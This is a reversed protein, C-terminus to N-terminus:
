DLAQRSRGKAWTGSQDNYVSQDSNSVPRTHGAVPCLHRVWGSFFWDPGFRRRGSGFRTFWPDGVSNTLNETSRVVSVLALLDRATPTKHHRRHEPEQADVEDHEQAEEQRSRQIFRFCIESDAIRGIVSKAHVSFKLILIADPHHSVRLPDKDDRRDACVQSARRIPFGALVFELAGAVAAPVIRLPDVKFSRRGARHVPRM